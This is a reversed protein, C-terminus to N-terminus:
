KKNRFQSFWKEKWEDMVDRDYYEFTCMEERGGHPTPFDDMMRKFWDEVEEQKYFDSVKYGDDNIPEPFESNVTM